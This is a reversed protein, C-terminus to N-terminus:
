LGPGLSANREDPGLFADKLADPEVTRHRFPIQRGVWSQPDPWSFVELRRHLVTGDALAAEVSFLVFNPSESDKLGEHVHVVTGWSSQAGEFRADRYRNNAAFAGAACVCTAVVGASFRDWLKGTPLLVLMVVAGAVAILGLVWRALNWWWSRRDITAGGSGDM